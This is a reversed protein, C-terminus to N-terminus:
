SGLLEDETMSWNDSFSVKGIGELSGLQRKKLKRYEAIPILVAIPEKQKGFTISIEQGAEVDKLVSSFQAKLEAVQFNKM